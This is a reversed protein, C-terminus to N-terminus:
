QDCRSRERRHEQRWMADVQETMEIAGRQMDIAMNDEFQQYRRRYMALENAAQQAGAFSMEQQRQLQFAEKHLHQVEQQALYREQSVTVEHNRMANAHMEAERARQIEHERLRQFVAKEQEHKRSLQEM